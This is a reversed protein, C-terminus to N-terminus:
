IDLGHDTNDSCWMAIVQKWVVKESLTVKRVCKPYDDAYGLYIVGMSGTFRM